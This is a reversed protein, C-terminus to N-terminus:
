WSMLDAHQDDAAGFDLKCVIEAVDVWRCCCPCRMAFDIAGAAGHRGVANAADVGRVGPLSSAAARAHARDEALQALVDV